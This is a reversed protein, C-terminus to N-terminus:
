KQDAFKWWAITGLLGSLSTFFLIIYSIIGPRSAFPAAAGSFLAPVAWPFYPTIGALGVFLFQTAILILILVAVPLLYGRSVSTIFAIPTCLLITLISSGTFARVFHVFADKSWGDLSIIFGSLIGAAFLVFLLLVSWFFIIVFKSSVIIQRSVPLALLDKIVRDSYERGFVWITVMGPGLMGLVLCMQILLNFFSKWSASGIFSAKTSLVASNGAIEPHKSVLMLFGMMISTFAFFVLTIWLMKSRLAKSVETIFAAYFGKM